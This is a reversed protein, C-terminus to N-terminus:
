TPTRSCEMHCLLSFFPFLVFCLNKYDTRRKKWAKANPSYLNHGMVVRKSKAHCLFLGRPCTERTDLLRSTNLNGTCVLHITCLPEVLALSLNCRAPKHHLKCECSGFKGKYVTHLGMKLLATLMPKQVHFALVCQRAAAM